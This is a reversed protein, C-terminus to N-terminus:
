SNREKIADAKKNWAEVTWINYLPGVGGTIGTLKRDLQYSNYKTDGEISGFVTRTDLKGVVKPYQKVIKTFVISAMVEGKKLRNTNRWWRRISAWAGKQNEIIKNIPKYSKKRYCQECISAQFSDIVTYRMVYYSTHSTSVARTLIYQCKVDDPNEELCIDCV